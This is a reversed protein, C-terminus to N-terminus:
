RRLRFKKTDMGLCQAVQLQANEIFPALLRSIVPHIQNEMYYDEDVKLHSNCKLEDLHYARKIYPDDSGDKCIVYGIMDGKKFMRNMTNNMRISVQVHPLTLINTYENIPRTLQKTIELTSVDVTAFNAKVNKLITLINEVREESDKESLIEDLIKEGTLAALRCWDRRVIDLGKIEKKEVLKGEPSRSILTAAYKKKKCLLLYKFIGDIDLEIHKYKANIAKKIDNGVALVKDYDISNTLVMISDTDGYVVDHMLKKVEAETNTLIERGKLTVLEALHPAYFRSNKFGLCGYMSNATLKLAMQRIDYQMKQEGSIKPNKMLNKVARRGEVLKKIQRPLIGAEVTSDPMIKSEDITTYCINYEQIISPYLSNFDMLLIFKDYFGVKPEM